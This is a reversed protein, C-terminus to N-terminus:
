RNDTIIIGGSARQWCGNVLNYSVNLNGGSPQFGAFSISANLNWLYYKWNHNYSTFIKTSVSQGAAGTKKFYATVICKDAQYESPFGEFTDIINYCVGQNTQSRLTVNSGYTNSGDNYVTGSIDGTTNYITASSYWYTFNTADSISVSMIDECDGLLDYNLSYIWDYSGSYRWLKTTRNYTISLDDMAVYDSTSMPLIEPEANKEGTNFSEYGYKKLILIEKEKSKDNYIDKLSSIRANEEEKGISLKSIEAIDDNLRNFQTEYMSRIENDMLNTSITKYGDDNLTVASVNGSFLLCEIMSFLLVAATIKKLKKM